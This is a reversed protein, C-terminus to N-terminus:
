LKGTLRLFREHKVKIDEVLHQRELERVLFPARKRLGVLGTRGRYYADIWGTRKTQLVLENLKLTRITDAIRERLGSDPIDNNPRVLNLDFDNVFWVVGIHIPDLVCCSGKNQNLLKSALRYNSWEFALMKNVKRSVFHDVSREKKTVWEASYACVKGYDRYLDDLCRRWIKSGKKKYDDKTPNPFQALFALGPTRVRSNFDAPAPKPTVRIM